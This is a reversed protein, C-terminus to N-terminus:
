DVSASRPDDEVQNFIIYFCSFFLRLLFILLIYFPSTSPRIVYIILSFIGKVLFPLNLYQGRFSPEKPNYRINRLRSRETQSTTGHSPLPFSLRLPSMFLLFRLHSRYSFTPLPYFPRFVLFETTVTTRRLTPRLSTPTHPCPFRTKQYGCKVSFFVPSTRSLVCTEKKVKSCM